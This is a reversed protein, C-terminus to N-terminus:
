YISFTATFPSHTLSGNGFYNASAATGSKTTVDYSDSSEQPYGPASQDANTGISIASGSLSEVHGDAFVFNSNAGHRASMGCAAYDSQAEGGMPGTDYVANAGSLYGMASCYGNGAPSSDEGTDYVPIAYSTQEVETLLVTRSPNTFLSMPIVNGTNAYRSVVNSNLAYSETTTYGVDGARTGPQDDPCKYPRTSKVDIFVENGWGVGDTGTQGTPFCSDNDAAYQLLGLALKKENSACLATLSTERLSAMIPFAIASIVFVIALGIVPQFGTFGLM